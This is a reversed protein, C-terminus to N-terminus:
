STQCPPICRSLTQNFVYGPPCTSCAGNLMFYGNVCQCSNSISDYIQNITCLSICRNLSNNYVTGNPCSSCVQNM